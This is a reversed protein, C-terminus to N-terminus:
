SVRARETLASSSSRGRARPRGLLELQSTRLRTAERRPSFVPFDLDASYPAAEYIVHRGSGDVNMIAIASHEIINEVLPDLKVQGSSQTFALQKSDPSFSVNADGPCTERHRGRPVAPRSFWAAATRRWSSSTGAGARIM